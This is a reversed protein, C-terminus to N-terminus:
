IPRVGNLAAVRRRGAELRRVLDTDRADRRIVIPIPENNSRKGARPVFVAIEAADPNGRGAAIHAATAIAQDEGDYISVVIVGDANERAELASVRRDFSIKM